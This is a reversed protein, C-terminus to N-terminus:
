FKLILLTSVSSWLVKAEESVSGAVSQLCFMFLVNGSGHLSYKGTSVHM